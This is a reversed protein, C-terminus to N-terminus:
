PRADPTRRDPGEGRRPPRRGDPNRPGAGPRVGREPGRGPRRGRPSSQRRFSLYRKIVREPNEEYERLWREQDEPSLGDIYAEVEDRIIEEYLQRRTEFRRLWHALASRQDPAEGAMALRARTTDSMENILQAVAESIREENKAGKSIAHDSRGITEYLMRLRRDPSLPDSGDRSRTEIRQKLWVAVIRVDERPLQYERVHRQAIEM